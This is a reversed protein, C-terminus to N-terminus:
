RVVLEWEHRNIPVADRVEHCSGDDLAVKDGRKPEVVESVRVRLVTAVQRAGTEFNSEAPEVTHVVTVPMSVGDRPTYTALGGHIRYAMDVANQWAAAM